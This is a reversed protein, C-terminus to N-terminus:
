HTRVHLLFSFRGIFGGALAPPKEKQAGNEGANAFELAM